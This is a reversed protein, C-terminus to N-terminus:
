QHRHSIVSVNLLDWWHNKQGMAQCLCYLETYSQNSCDHHLSTQNLLMLKVSDIMPEWIGLIGGWVVCACVCVCVCTRACVCVFVCVSIQLLFIILREQTDLPFRGDGTFFMESWWVVGWSMNTSASFLRCLLAHQSSVKESATAIRLMIVPVQGCRVGSSCFSAGWERSYVVSM